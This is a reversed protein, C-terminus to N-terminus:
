EYEYFLESSSAYTTDPFVRYAEAIGFVPYGEENFEYTFEHYQRTIGLAQEEWFILNNNGPNVQLFLRLEVPLGSFPSPQDDYEYRGQWLSFSLSSRPVEIVNGNADLILELAAEPFFDAPIIKLTDGSQEYRTFDVIVSGPYAPDSINRVHHEVLKGDEYLFTITDPAPYPNNPNVAAVMTKVRGGEYELIHYEIRSREIRFSSVRGADDYELLLPVGYADPLDGRVLRPPSSDPSFYRDFLQCSFTCFSLFILGSLPLFNRSRM